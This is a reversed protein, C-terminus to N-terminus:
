WVVLINYTHQDDKIRSKISLNFYVKNVVMMSMVEKESMWTEREREEDNRKLIKRCKKAYKCNAKARVCEKKWYESEKQIHFTTKNRGNKGSGM